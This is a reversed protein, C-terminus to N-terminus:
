CNVQIDKETNKKMEILKIGRKSLKLYSISSKDSTICKSLSKM